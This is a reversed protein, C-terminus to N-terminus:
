RPRPQGDPGIVDSFDRTSSLRVPLRKAIAMEMVKLGNSHPDEQPAERAYLVVASGSSAAVDFAKAVDALTAPQGNIEVRGDKYVFVKVHTLEQPPAPGGASCAMRLAVAAIAAQM